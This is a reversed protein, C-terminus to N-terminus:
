AVGEPWPASTSTRAPPATPSPAPMPVTPVDLAFAALVDDPPHLTAPAHQREWLAAHRLFESSAVMLAHALGRAGLRWGGRLVYCWGFRLLPRVVLSTVHVRRGRAELVDAELPAYATYRAVQDVISFGRWHILAGDLPIARGPVRVEDHVILTPDYQSRTRNFLRIFNLRKSRRRMRPLLAGLFDDRRDVSYGDDNDMTGHLVADLGAALRPTVIEDAELIFVWDHRALAIGFARQAIWGQWPQEFVRAGFARAIERTRDVSCADIVVIDDVVGIVSQLCRAILPEENRVLIVASVGVRRTGNVSPRTTM